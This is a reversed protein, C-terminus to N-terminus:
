ASLARVTLPMLVGEKLRNKVMPAMLGAPMRLIETETPPLSFEFNQVLAVLVTQMEILSFRWGICGRTGASFTMLNGYVGLKITNEVEGNIFRQPNFENADEGWIGKIRNYACVSILFEQGKAIPIEEINEGTATVLPESLPIIDDKAAFRGLHYVIPHLRLVEKLLAQLFPMSELDEMEFDDGEDDRRAIEERKQKVEERLHNQYKPHKALEWLSWALVSATTDHGALTLTAMQSMMENKSLQFSPNESMNARVLVSMVDKNSKEVEVVKAEEIAADVLITSVKDVVKKSKRFRKYERTPIYGVFNLLPRPLWKWSARFFTMWLRPHLQSDAFLNDYAKSVENGSNDLAGFEFHFATEGIVDLTMRALWKNVPIVEGEPKEDLIQEKWLRCLKAAGNRFQPLFSRLQSASFAPSMAKRHRAHSHDTHANMISDGLFIRTIVDSEISKPYNYGSRQYIHQLAKPDAVALVDQGLPASMRWVLGYEKVYEFDLDGVNSQYSFTHMNGKWFSPDPGRIHKVSFKTLRRYITYVTLSILVSVSVASTISVM